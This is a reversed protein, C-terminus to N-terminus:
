TSEYRKHEIYYYVENQFPAAQSELFLRFNLKIAAVEVSCFTVAERNSTGRKM